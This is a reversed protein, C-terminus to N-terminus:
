SELQTALRKENEELRELKSLRAREKRALSRYSDTRLSDHAEGWVMLDDGVVYVPTSCSPCIMCGEGFTSEYEAIEGRVSKIESALMEKVKLDRSLAESATECKFVSCLRRLKDSAAEYEEAEALEAELRA